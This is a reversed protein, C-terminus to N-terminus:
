PLGLLPRPHPSDLRQFDMLDVVLDPMGALLGLALGAGRRTRSGVRLIRGDELREACEAGREPALARDIRHEALQHPNLYRPEVGASVSEGQAIGPGPM